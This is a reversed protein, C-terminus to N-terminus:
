NTQECHATILTRCCVSQAHQSPTLRPYHPLSLITRPAIIDHWPSDLSRLFRDPRLAQGCGRCTQHQDLRRHAEREPVVSYLMTANARVLDPNVDIDKRDLKNRFLLGAKSNAVVRFNRSDSVTPNQAKWNFYSLDGNHPLLLKEGLFYPRFDEAQFRQALDIYGSIEKKKEVVQEKKVDKKGGQNKTPSNQQKKVTSAKKKEEDKEADTVLEEYRLFLITKLRGNM